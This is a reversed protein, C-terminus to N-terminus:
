RRRIFDMIEKRYLLFALVIAVVVLAITGATKGLKMSVLETGCIIVLFLIAVSLFIAISGTRLKKDYESKNKGDLRKM